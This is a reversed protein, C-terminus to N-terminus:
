PGELALLGAGEGDGVLWRRELSPALAVQERRKINEKDKNLKDIRAKAEQTAKDQEGKEKRLRKIEESVEREQREREKKEALLREM